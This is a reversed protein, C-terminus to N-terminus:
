GNPAFRKLRRLAAQRSGLTRVAQEYNVDGLLVLAMVICYLGCAKDISGQNLLVRERRGRRVCLAPHLRQVFFEAM